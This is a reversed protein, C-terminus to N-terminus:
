RESRYGQQANRNQRFQRISVFMIALSLLILAINTLKPGPILIAERPDSPNFFVKVRVEDKSTSMMTYNDSLTFGFSETDSKYHVENVAYSYNFIRRWGPEIIPGYWTDRAIRHHPSNTEYITGIATPWYLAKIDKYMSISEEVCLIFAIFVFILWYYEAGKKFEM